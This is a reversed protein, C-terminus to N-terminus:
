LLSEWVESAQWALEQFSWDLNDIDNLDGVVEFTADARCLWGPMKKPLPVWDGELSTAGPIVLKVRDGSTESVFGVYRLGRQNDPLISTRSDANLVKMQDFRIVSSPDARGSYRHAILDRIAAPLEYTDAIIEEIRRVGEEFAQHNASKLKVLDRGMEGILQIKELPPVRFASLTRLENNREVSLEDVWASAISSNLIVLLGYLDTAEDKPVVILTGHGGTVGPDALGARVRWPNNVDSLAPVLIKLRNILDGLGKGRRFQDPYRYSQIQDTSPRGFATVIKASRFFGVNGLKADVPIAGPMPQPGNVVHAINALPLIADNTRLFRSISGQILPSTVTELFSEDALGASLFSQLAERATVTHGRSNARRSPPSPASIRRFVRSPRATASTSPKKQALFISPAIKVDTFIHEPLRWVEFVDCESMLRERAPNNNRTTWSAPVILGLLGEPQLLDIVRNVFLDAKEARDEYKWPPNTVIITPDTSPKGEELADRKAIDWGNGTPLAHLVLGLRAIETAFWDDDWGHLSAILDQHSTRADWNTPQLGQLRSHAAILLTGSGCAPDLVIRREPALYEIPLSDLIKSALAPPTYHIGLSRRVEDTVLTNQYVENLVTPDLSRYNIGEHLDEVANDFATRQLPELETILNFYNSYRQLFIDELTRTPMSLDSQKDTLVVVCLARIVVRCLLKWDDDTVPHLLERTSDITQEVRESLWRAGQNRARTLAMADIPILALQRSTKARLLTNPALAFRLEEVSASDSISINRWFVPEGEQNMYIDLDDPRAILLLPAGLAAASVFLDDLSRTSRQGSNDITCAFAATSMDAPEPRCFGVLDIESVTHGGLWIPYNYALMDEQYGAQTLVQRLWPAREDLLTM